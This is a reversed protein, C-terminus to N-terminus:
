RWSRGTPRTPKVILLKQEPVVRAFIAASKVRRRLEQPGMLALEQGTVV